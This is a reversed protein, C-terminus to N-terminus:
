NGIRFVSGFGNAGGQSATGYLNGRRDMVLSAKPTSGEAAQFSHLITETGDPSLKFVTGCNCDVGGKSTTGYINGASDLIVGAMPADGDSGGTFTYLTTFTGDPAVRYVGGGLWTTGYLNGVSDAVLEGFSYAGASFEFEHPYTATGDPALKYLMGVTDDGGLGTLGYLDGQKDRLLGGSPEYASPPGPFFFLETFIGDPALKYVIGCGKSDCSHGGLLTTGYLNGDKDAIVPGAPIEGFRHGAFAHLVTTTGDPAVKFVTGCGKGHKSCDGGGGETTTGYLNGQKDAILGAEPVAGDAQGGQFAHLVTESGDSAIKFVTGCGQGRECGTGGGRSTTGYLDGGILLLRSLPAAGDSGGKFSYLVRTGAEAPASVACAILLAAVWRPM